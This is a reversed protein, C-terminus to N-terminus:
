EHYKPQALCVMTVRFIRSRMSLTRFLEGYALDKGEKAFKDLRSCTRIIYNNIRTAEKTLSRDAAHREMRLADEAAVTMLYGNDQGRLQDLILWFRSKPWLLQKTVDFGNNTIVRGSSM